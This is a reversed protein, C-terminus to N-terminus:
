SKIQVTSDQPSPTVMKSERTKCVRGVDEVLLTNAAEGYLSTCM